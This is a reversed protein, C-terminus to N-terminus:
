FFEMAEKQPMGRLDFRLECCLSLITLPGRGYEWRFMLLTDIFLTAVLTCM